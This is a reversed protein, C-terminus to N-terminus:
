PKKEQPPLDFLSPQEAAEARREAKTRGKKGREADAEVKGILTEERL